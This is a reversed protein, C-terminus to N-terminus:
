NSSTEYEIVFALSCTAGPVDAAVCLASAVASGSRGLDVVQAGVGVSGGMWTYGAGFTFGSFSVISCAGIQNGVNDSVFPLGTIQLNGAMAADKATILVQGTLRVMSGRRSWKGASSAATHNGPTISGALKPTWVGEEEDKPTAGLICWNASKTSVFVAAFSATQADTVIVTECNTGDANQCVLRSGIHISEMTQPIITQSGTGGMANPVYTQPAQRFQVNRYPVLSGANLWFAATRGAGTLVKNNGDILLSTTPNKENNTLLMIQTGATAFQNGTIAGGQIEDILVPYTGGVAEYFTNAGTFDVGGCAGVYNGSKTTNTWVMAAAGTHAESENGNFRIGGVGAARLAVTGDNFNNDRITHNVGGDDLINELGGGAGNFQTESIVIRNTFNKNAGVTHDAGNVLWVGTKGSPHILECRHVTALETQDFIVQYRFGTIYVNSLDVFTGGVDVFGGGTNAGNSNTLALDRLGIWVATSANIPWTSKIGDGANTFALISAQRGEGVLQTRKFINLSATCKYTGRPVYVQAGLIVSTATLAAQIAATDDTVGDGVAGFQKVSIRDRLEAQVTRAVAGVGAQLFGVLASGASSAISAIYAVLQALVNDSNSFDASSPAYYVLQGKRNRVTVSYDTDAYVNAPTGTRTTYGNLTRVPQAAPQTGAPDWYVVIPHTESNQNAVGFFIKGNDLPDGDIDVYFPFPTTTALAM